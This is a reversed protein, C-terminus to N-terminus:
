EPTVATVHGDYPAPDDQLGGSRARGGLRALLVCAAGLVALGVTSLGSLLLTGGSGLDAVLRGGLAAGLPTASVLIASRFASLSVLEDPPAERQLLTVSLPGYPAYILGGLAFGAIGAALTGFTALPLMALGWGAVIALTAPWLPLRRLAGTIVAGTVAGAGFAGWIWGLMTPDGGLHDAVFVPVAVEVPGYLLYFLYSLALLGVLAPRHAFTRVTRRLPIPPRRGVTGRVRVRVVTLTMFAYSIADCLLVAAPGLVSAVAGALPPGAIYSFQEQGAIMSNGALRSEPPLCEAVFTQRGAIGWAHLLSSSALLVIYTTADLLGAWHLVPILTFVVGRLVSDLLILSRADRSSLRRGLAISGIAGPLSYAAVALGTVTARDAPAALRIALWAVGLLSMGDGIFSVLFGPQMRRFDRDALCRAYGEPVLRRLRGGRGSLTM